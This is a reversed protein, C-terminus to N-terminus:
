KISLLTCACYLLRSPIFFFIPSRIFPILYIWNFKLTQRVSNMSNECKWVSIAPSVLIGIWIIFLGNVTLNELIKSKLIFNKTLAIFTHVTCSGISVFHIEDLSCFHLMEDICNNEKNAKNPSSLSANQWRKNYM